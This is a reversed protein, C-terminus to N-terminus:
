PASRQREARALMSPLAAFSAFVIVLILYWNALDFDRMIPKILTAGGICSAVAALLLVLGFRRKRWELLAAHTLSMYLAFLVFGLLGEVSLRFNSKKIGSQDILGIKSIGAIRSEISFSPLGGATIASIQMMDRPNLLLPKITIENLHSSIEPKLDEPSIRSM